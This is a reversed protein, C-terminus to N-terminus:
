HSELVKLSLPELIVRLELDMADKTHTLFMAIMAFDDISTEEFGFDKM